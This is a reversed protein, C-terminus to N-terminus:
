TEGEGSEEEAANKSKRERIRTSEHVVLDSGEQAIPPQLM